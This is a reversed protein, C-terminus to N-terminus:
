QGDERGAFGGAEVPDACLLRTTLRPPGETLVHKAAATIIGCGAADDIAGTALDWSDLHCAIIVPSAAPDSGPVEAIVNGSTQDGITQPTLLLKMKLPGTARQRQRVLQDADPNSIAGAPIPTVGDAFNTVGAHPNRHNDTGISRIVIGIAGKKAAVSPGMFRGRGYLGYGSGDQTPEMQNDIFVIKGKVASEAEAVRADFSALDAIEGEIGKPGTSGSNGLATIALAEPMFPGSCPLAGRRVGPGGRERGAGSGSKRTRGKTPPGRPGLFRGRCYLRSGNGDQTTAIQHALFVIKRKAASAAAALLAHFSAFYALEGEIGKPGTSGSNGLAPIALSQPLFPGTLWAKEEGRQWVPM